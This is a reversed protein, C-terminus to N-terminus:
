KKEIVFKNGVLKITENTTIIWRPIQQKVMIEKPLKNEQILQSITKYDVIIKTFIMKEISFDKIKLRKLDKMETDLESVCSKLENRLKNIQNRLDYIKKALKEIKVYDM